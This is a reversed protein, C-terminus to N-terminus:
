KAEKSQKEAANLTEALKKAPAEKYYLKRRGSPNKVFDKAVEDWVGIMTMSFRRVTYRM